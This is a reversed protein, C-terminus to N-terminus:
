REFKIHLMFIQSRYYSPKEPSLQFTFESICLEMKEYIPPIGICQGFFKLQCPPFLPSKKLHKKQFFVVRDKDTSFDKQTNFKQFVSHSSIANKRNAVMRNKQKQGKPFVTRELVNGNPSRGSVAGPLAYVKPM